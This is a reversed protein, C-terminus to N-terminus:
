QFAQLMGVDDCKVVNNVSFISEREDELKDYTETMKAVTKKLQM